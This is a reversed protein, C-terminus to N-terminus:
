SESSEGRQSGSLRLILAGVVHVALWADERSAPTANHADGKESRDASVWDIVKQIGDALASDHSALLGKARASKALKGLSNGDCGLLTLAEQLATGADTIADEPSGETIERLADQYASEVAEWGARGSLLRITPAVVETHLEQSDFEVMRREVLEYSIRHENLVTNVREHFKEPESRYEWPQVSLMLAIAEIASLLVEDDAVKIFETFDYAHNWRENVLWEWGEDKLVLRRAGQLLESRRYENSCDEIAHLIKIRAAEDFEPSWFSEGAEELERLRELRKRRAFLM